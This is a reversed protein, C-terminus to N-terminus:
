MDSALRVIQPFMFSGIYLFGCCCSGMAAFYKALIACGVAGKARHEQSLLKGGKIESKPVSNPPKTIKKADGSINETVTETAMTDTSSSTKALQRNMTKEDFEGRKLLEEFTGVAKITGKDVICVIDCQGM